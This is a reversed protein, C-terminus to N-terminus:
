KVIERIQKVIKGNVDNDIINKQESAIGQLERATKEWAAKATANDPAQSLFKRWAEGAPTFAYKYFLSEFNETTSGIHDRWKPDAEASLGTSYYIADRVKSETLPPMTNAGQAPTGKRRLIAAPNAYAARVSVKGPKDGNQELILNPSLYWYIHGYGGGYNQGLVGIDGAQPSNVKDFYQRISNNDNAYAYAHGWAGANIGYMKSLGQNILSVCEGIYSGDTKGVSGAGLAWDKFQSLSMM